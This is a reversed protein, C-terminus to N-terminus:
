QQLVCSDEQNVCSLPSFSFLPGVVPRCVRGIGKWESAGMTEDFLDEALVNGGVQPFM